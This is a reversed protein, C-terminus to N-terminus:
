LSDRLNDIWKIVFAKKSESLKADDHIFTYSSLPMNDKKIQSSISKLKSKKRRNSYNGWENFNLESKGEEIHNELFWAIPQVKNYWPYQTNNSHCDYCSTKLVLSIEAPVAYVKIFDTIPTVDTQNRKVPIFQVGVFLM